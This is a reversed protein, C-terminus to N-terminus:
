YSPSWLHSGWLFRKLHDRHKARLLRSTNGKLVKVIQCVALTPPIQVLLHIHDAEGGFEIIEFGTKEASESCISEADLLIENTLAKRRYKVVFVLHILLKSVSSGISIWSISSNMYVAYAGTKIRVM